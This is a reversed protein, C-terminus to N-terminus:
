SSTHGTKCLPTVKAMKLAKPIGGTFFSLNGIIYVHICANIIEQACVWCNWATTVRVSQASQCWFRNMRKWFITNVLKTILRVSLCVSPCVSLYFVYHRQRYLRKQCLFLIFRFNSHWKRLLPTVSQSSARPCIVYFAGYGMKFKRFFKNNNFYQSFNGNFVFCHHFAFHVNV